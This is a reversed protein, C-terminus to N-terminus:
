QRSLRSGIGDGRGLVLKAHIQLKQPTAFGSIAAHRFLGDDFHVLFTIFNLIVLDWLGIEQEAACSQGDIELAVPEFDADRRLVRAHPPLRALTGEVQM